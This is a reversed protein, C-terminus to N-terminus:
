EGLQQEVLRTYEAELEQHQMQLGNLRENVTQSELILDRLRAGAETVANSLGQLMEKQPASLAVETMISDLSKLSAALKQELEVAASEIADYNALIEQLKNIDEEKAAKTEQQEQEKVEVAKQATELKAEIEKLQGREKEAQEVISSIKGKLDELAAAAFLTEKHSVLKALTSEHEAVEKLLREQEGSDSNGSTRRKLWVFGAGFIVASLVLGIISAVVM